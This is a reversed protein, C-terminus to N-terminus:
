RYLSYPATVWPLSPTSLATIAHYGRYPFPHSPNTPLTYHRAKWLVLIASQYRYDQQLEVGLCLWCLAPVGVEYLVARVVRKHSVM